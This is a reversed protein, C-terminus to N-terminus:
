IMVPEKNNKMQLVFLFNQVLGCLIVVIQVEVKELALLQNKQTDVCFGDKCNGSVCESDSCCSNGAKVSNMNVCTEQCCLGEKNSCYTGNEQNSCLLNLNLNKSVECDGDSCLGTVQFGGLLDNSDCTIKSTEQNEPCSDYYADHYAALNLDCHSSNKNINTYTCIGQYLKEENEIFCINEENSYANCTQVCGVGEILISMNQQQCILIQNYIDNPDIYKRPNDVEIEIGKSDYCTLTSSDCNIDLNYSCSALLVVFFLLVIFGIHKFM